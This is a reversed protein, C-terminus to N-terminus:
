KRYKYLSKWLEPTFDYEVHVINNTKTIRNPMFITQLVEGNTANDPILIGNKIAKAIDENDEDFIYGNECIATYMDRYLPAELIDIIIKM